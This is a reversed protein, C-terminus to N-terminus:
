KKTGLSLYAFLDRLEEDKMEKLVDTPMLSTSMAKLIEIDDRGVVTLQNDANRLTVTNPDQAAIMGSLARGDFTLVQYSQFGERIELGPDVIAPLWFSLNGREYGDLPPGVKKGEGFLQHCNACRKSFQAKGAEAKGDGDALLKRLRRFEEALQPKTLDIAKGFAAEVQAVIEPQGYARLQQVVDPPVQDRRVRWANLEALLVKAWEPRSALTRCATSRLGHEGSIKSGFAGVLSKPISDDNYQTLSQMAVRQLAPEDTGRGTALSVLTPVVKPANVEGLTKAVELRVALDASPNKLTKIAQNLSDQKGQRLGLVIGSDGVQSQHQELAAALSDPLPPVSQGQFARHLGVM